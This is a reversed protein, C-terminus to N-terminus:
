EVLSVSVVAIIKEWHGEIFESLIVSQFLFVLLIFIPFLHFTWKCSIYPTIELFHVSIHIVTYPIFETHGVARVLQLELHILDLPHCSGNEVNVSPKKDEKASNTSKRSCSLFIQKALLFSLLLFLSDFSSLPNCADFWSNIKSTLLIGTFM